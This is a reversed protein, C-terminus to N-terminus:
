RRRRTASGGFLARSLGVSVGEEEEAGTYARNVASSDM